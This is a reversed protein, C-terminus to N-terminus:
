NCYFYIRRPLVNRGNWKGMDRFSIVCAPKTGNAVGTMHLETAYWGFVEGEIKATGIMSQINDPVNLGIYEYYKDVPILGKWEHFKAYLENLDAEFFRSSFSDYCMVKAM